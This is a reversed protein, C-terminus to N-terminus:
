KRKQKKGSGLFLNAAESRKSSSPTKSSSAGVFSSKGVEKLTQQLLV